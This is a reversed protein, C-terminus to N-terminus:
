ADQILRRCLEIAHNGVVLPRVADIAALLVVRSNRDRTRGIVAADPEVIKIRHAAALARM